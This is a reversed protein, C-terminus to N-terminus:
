PLDFANQQWIQVKMIATKKKDSIIIEHKYGIQEKDHIQTM